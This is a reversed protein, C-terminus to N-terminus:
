IKYNIRSLRNDIKEIDKLLKSMDAYLLILKKNYGILKEAESHIRTENEKPSNQWELINKAFLTTQNQYYNIDQILKVLEENKKAVKRELVEASNGFGFM